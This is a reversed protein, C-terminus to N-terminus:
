RNLILILLIGILLLAAVILALPSFPKPRREIMKGRKKHRFQAIANFELAATAPNETPKNEPIADEFILLYDFFPRRNMKTPEFNGPLVASKKLNLIQQKM